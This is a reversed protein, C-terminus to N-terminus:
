PEGRPHRYAIEIDMEGSALPAYTGKNVRTEGALSSEALGGRNINVYLAKRIDQFLKELTTAAIDNSTASVDITLLVMLVNRTNQYSMHDPTERVPTIFISPFNSDSLQSPAVLDRSVQKVTVNYGNAVTITEFTTKLNELINEVM